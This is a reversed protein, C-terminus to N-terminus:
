GQKIRGDEAARSTGVGLSATHIHKGSKVTVGDSIQASLPYVKGFADAAV